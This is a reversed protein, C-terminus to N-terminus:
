EYMLDAHMDMVSCRICSLPGYNLLFICSGVFDVDYSDIQIHFRLTRLFLITTEM